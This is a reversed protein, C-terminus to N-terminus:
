ESLRSPPKKETERADSDEERGVTKGVLRKQRVLGLFGLCRGLVTSNSNQGMPRKARAM